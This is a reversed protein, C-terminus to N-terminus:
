PCYGLESFSIFNGRRKNVDRMFRLNPLKVDYNYLFPLSIYLFTNQVQLITTKDVLGIKQQQRQQQRQRERQQRM